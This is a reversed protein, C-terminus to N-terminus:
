HSPIFAKLAYAALLASLSAAVAIGIFWVLQKWLPPKPDNEEPPGVPEIIAPM